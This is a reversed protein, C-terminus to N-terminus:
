LDPPPVATKLQTYLEDYHAAVTAFYDDFSSWITAMREKTQALMEDEQGRRIMRRLTAFVHRVNAVIEKALQNLPSVTAESLLQRLADAAIPVDAPDDLYGQRLMNDLLFARHWYLSLSDSADKIALFYLVTRYLQKLFTFVIFFPWGLCSQWCGLQLRNLERITEPPLSRGNRKAIAAPM